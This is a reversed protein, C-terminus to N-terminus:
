RRTYQSSDYFSQKLTSVPNGHAPQDGKRKAPVVTQSAQPKIATRKASKSKRPKPFNDAEFCSAKM